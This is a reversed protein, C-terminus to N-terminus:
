GMPRPVEAEGALVDVDGHDVRAHVVFVGSEVLFENGAVVGDAVEVRVWGARGSTNTFGVASVVGIVAM